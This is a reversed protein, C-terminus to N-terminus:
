FTMSASLQIPPLSAMSCPNASQRNSESSISVPSVLWARAATFSSMARAFAPIGRLRAWVAASTTMVIHQQFSHVVDAEVLRPWLARPLPNFRQGRVRAWPRRVVVRLPGESWEANRSGAAYLTAQGTEGAVARALEMAYREGGGWAGDDGFLAPTTFLPKM